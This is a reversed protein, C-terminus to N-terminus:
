QRQWQLTEQRRREQIVGKDFGTIKKVDEKSKSEDDGGDRTSGWALSFADDDKNGAGDASNNSDTGFSQNPGCGEDEDQNASPEEEVEPVEEVGNNPEGIGSERSSDGGDNELLERDNGAPSSSM